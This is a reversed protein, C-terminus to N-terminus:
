AAAETRCDTGDHARDLLERLAAAGQQLVVGNGLLRLQRARTLGPVATVWGSPLGMLWEVFRPSLRPQGTRGPETPDPGPRGTVREWRAIAPAYAGWRDLVRGATDVRHDIHDTEPCRAGRDSLPSVPRGDAHWAVEAPTALAHQVALDLGGYGSCLSGIRLPSNSSTVTDELLHTPHTAPGGRSVGPAPRRRTRTM